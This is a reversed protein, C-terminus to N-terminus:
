LRIKIGTAEEVLSEVEYKNYETNAWTLTGGNEDIYKIERATKIIKFKVNNSQVTYPYHDYTNEM